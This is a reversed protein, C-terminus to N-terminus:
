KKKRMVVVLVIIIVVGAAAAIILLTTLDLPAGPGTTPTTPPVATVNVTVSDSASYGVNDYVTIEYVYTGNALGDISISLPGGNWSGSDVTTSEREISYSWPMESSPTWEISYGTTGEEYGVDSPHDITPRLMFAIENEWLEFADVYTSDDLDDVYENILLGNFIVRDNLGLVISANGEASVNYYGALATANSFVTLFDGEDGYAFGPTFNAAAYDNPM